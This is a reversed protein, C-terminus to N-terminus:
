LAFGLADLGVAERPVVRGITEIQLVAGQERQLKQAKVVTAM